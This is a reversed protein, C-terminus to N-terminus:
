GTCRILSISLTAHSSECSVDILLLVPDVIIAEAAGTDRRMRHATALHREVRQRRQAQRLAGLLRM